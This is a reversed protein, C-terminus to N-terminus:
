GVAHLHQAVRCSEEAFPRNYSAVFSVLLVFFSFRASGFLSQWEKTDKTSKTALEDATANSDARNKSGKPRERPVELAHRHEHATIRLQGLHIRRIPVCSM